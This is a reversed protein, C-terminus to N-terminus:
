EGNGVPEIGGKGGEGFREGYGLVADAVATGHSRTVPHHNTAGPDDPHKAEKRGCGPLRPASRSGFPIFGGAKLGGAPDSEFGDDDARVFAAEGFLDSFM